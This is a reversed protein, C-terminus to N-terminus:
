LKIRIPFERGPLCYLYKRRLCMNVQLSIININRREKWKQQANCSLTASLPIIQRETTQFPIPAKVQVNSLAQLTRRQFPISVPENSFHLKEDLYCPYIFIRLKNNQYTKNDVKAKVANSSGGLPAM